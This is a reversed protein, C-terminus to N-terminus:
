LFYNRNLSIWALGHGDLTEVSGLRQDLGILNQNSYYESGNNPLFINEAARAVSSIFIFSVIMCNM